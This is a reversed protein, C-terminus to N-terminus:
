PLCLRRMAREIAVACAREYMLSMKAHQSLAEWNM